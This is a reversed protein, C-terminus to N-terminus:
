EEAKGGTLEKKAKLEWSLSGRVENYFPLRKSNSCEAWTKHNRWRSEENTELNGSILHWESQEMVPIHARQAVSLVYKDFLCIFSLFECGHKTRKEELRAKTAAQLSVYPRLDGDDLAEELDQKTKGSVLEGCHSQSRMSEQWNSALSFVNSSPHSFSDKNSM